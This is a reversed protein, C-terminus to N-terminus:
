ETAVGLRSLLHDFQELSNFQITVSGAGKKRSPRIAVKAGLQKSIQDALDTLHAQRATPSKADGAAAAAAPEGSGVMKRVAAEVQRVSMADRVAQKALLLQHADDVLGAIARAQGASLVGQRLLAQVPYCLNLLRLSNSVTSREIGVSRAIQDHSQQFQDALRQFAQAREIPNLDERQLNEVLAWQAVQQDTLDRVVAPVADLGALEAARWRREGAVLEFTPEESGDTRPRTFKRPRVIIPQMIGDTRISEALRDLGADDITQRPQYPNPQIAGLRLYAIQEGGTQTDPAAAASPLAPTEPRAPVAVPAGPLKTAPPHATATTASEAPQDGVADKPPDTTEPTEPTEPPEPPEPSPPTMLSSLGRGLRPTRAKSSAM